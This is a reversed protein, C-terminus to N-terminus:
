PRNLRYLGRSVLLFLETTSGNGVAHKSLFIHYTRDAWGPCAAKLMKANFPERLIGSDVARFIQSGFEKMRYDEGVLTSM